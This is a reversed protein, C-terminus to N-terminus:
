SDPQPRNGTRLWENVYWLLDDAEDHHEQSELLMEKARASAAGEQEVIEIAATTEDLSRALLEASYAAVEDPTCSLIPKTAGRQVPISAPLNRTGAPTSLEVRDGASAVRDLRSDRRDQRALGRADIAAVEDYHHHPRLADLGAQMDRANAASDRRDAAEDRSEAGALLQEVQRQRKTIAAERAEAAVDRQDAVAERRDAAADRDDMVLDVPDSENVNVGGLTHSSM